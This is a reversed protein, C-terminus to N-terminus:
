LMLSSRLSKQGEPRISLFLALLGAGLKLSCPTILLPRGHFPCLSSTLASTGLVEISNTSSDLKIKNRLEIFGLPMAM